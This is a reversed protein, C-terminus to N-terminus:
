KLESALKSTSLVSADVLQNTVCISTKRCLGFQPTSNPDATYKLGVGQPTKGATLKMTDTLFHQYIEYRAKEEGYKNKIVLNFSTHHWACGETGLFGHRSVDNNIAIYKALYRNYKTKKGPIIKFEGNKPSNACYSSEIVGTYTDHSNNYIQIYGKSYSLSFAAISTLLFMSSLVKKM